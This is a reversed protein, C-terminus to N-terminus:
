NPSQRTVKSRFKKLDDQEQVARVVRFGVFDWNTLWQISQPRQPDHKIWEPTSGTRAASRLAPADDNWAGGRAVHSFRRHSPLLVPGVSPKGAPLM